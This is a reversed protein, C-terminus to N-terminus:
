MVVERSVIKYYKKSKTFDKILDLLDTKYVLMSEYKNCILKMKNYLYDKYKNNINYDFIVIINEKSIERIRKLVDEYELVFSDLYDFPEINSSKMYALDNYGINLVIYKSKIFLNNITYKKNKYILDKNNIIDNYVDILRYNNTNKYYIYNELRNKRSLYKVSKDGVIIKDSIEFYIVKENTNILYILAVVLVCSVLFFIKKMNDGFFTAKM